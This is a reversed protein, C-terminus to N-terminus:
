TTCITPPCASNWELGGDLQANEFLKLWAWNQIFAPPPLIIWGDKDGVATYEKAAICLATLGCIVAARDDHNLINEFTSESKRSPLLFSLLLDLDGREALHKYYRDSKAPKDAKLREPDQLQLGLFSTPFAEAIAFDHIAHHYAANGICGTGLLIKACSNAAANLLRGNPSNSQGPKGIFPQLKRTLLREARRYKGIVALDSRLPGDFAAALIPRDAFRSLLQTREPELARFREVTFVISTADWDFRCVASSRATKSYGIDIGLVSGSSPLSRSSFAVAV